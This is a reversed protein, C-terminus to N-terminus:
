NCPGAADSDVYSGPYGAHPCHTVPMDQQIGTELHWLRCNLTNGTQIQMNQPDSIDGSDQDQYFGPNAALVGDLTAECGNEGGDYVFISNDDTCYTRVLECFPVIPGGCQTSGLPGAHRCHAAPGGTDPIGAAHAHWLRCGLSNEVAPEDSSYYPYSNTSLGFLYIQCIVECPDAGGEIGPLYEQFEGQCNQGIVSCYNGCTLPDALTVGAASDPGPTVGADPELQANGIGLVANCGALWGSAAGALAFGALVLSTRFTM